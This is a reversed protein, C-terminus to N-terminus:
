KKAAPRFYSQDGYFAPDHNAPCLDPWGLLPLPKLDKPLLPRTSLGKALHQDVQQHLDPAQLQDPSVMIALWKATLGRYPNRCKEWLAHGFLAIKAVRPLEARRTIFLEHWAHSALLAGVWAVSTIVIVGNEDFLTAGNQQASRQNRSGTTAPYACQSRHLALKTKPFLAWSLANYYDHWNASRTPVAAHSAIFPEYGGAAKLAASDQEVFPLPATPFCHAYDALPPCFEPWLQRRLAPPITQELSARCDLANQSDKAPMTM